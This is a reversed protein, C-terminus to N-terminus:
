EDEGRHLAITWVVVLLAVALVLSWSALPTM